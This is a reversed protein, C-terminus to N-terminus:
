DDCDKKNIIDGITWNNDYKCDSYNDPNTVFDYEMDWSSIVFKLSLCLVGDYIDRKAQFYGTSISSTVYDGQGSYAVRRLLEKGESILEYTTTPNNKYSKMNNLTREILEFDMDILIWYIQEDITMLDIKKLKRDNIENNIDSILKINPSKKKFELYILNTLGKTTYTNFKM